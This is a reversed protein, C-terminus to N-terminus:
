HENAYKRFWFYAVISLCGTVLCFGYPFTESDYRIVLATIAPVLLASGLILISKVCVSALLQWDSHRLLLYGSFVVTYGIVAALIATLSLTRRGWGGALAVRFVAVAIGALILVLAAIHRLTRM